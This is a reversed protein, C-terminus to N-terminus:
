AKLIVSSQRLPTAVDILKDAARNARTRQREGSFFGVGSGAVLMAGVGYLGLAAPIGVGTLTLVTATAFVCVAGILMAAIEAIKRAKPTHKVLETTNLKLQECYKKSNVDKPNQVLKKTTTITSKLKELQDLTTGAQKFYDAALEDIAHCMARGQKRVSFTTDVDRTNESPVVQNCVMNLSQLEELLASQCSIREQSKGVLSFTKEIVSLDKTQLLKKLTVLKKEYSKMTAVKVARLQILEAPLADFNADLNNKSIKLRELQKNLLLKKANCITKEINLVFCGSKNVLCRQKDTVSVDECQELQELVKFLQQYSAKRQVQKPDSSTFECNAYLFINMYQLQYERQSADTQALIASLMSNMKNLLDDNKALSNTNLVPTMKYKHFLLRVLVDNKISINTVTNIASLYNDLKDLTVLYKGIIFEYKFINEFSETKSPDDIFEELKGLIETAVKQRSEVMSKTLNQFVENNVLENIFNIRDDVVGNKRLEINKIYINDKLLQLKSELKIDINLKCEEVIEEYKKDVFKIDYKLDKSAQNSTTKEKDKLRANICANYNKEIDSTIEALAKEGSDEMFIKFDEIQLLADKIAKQRNLFFDKYKNAAKTDGIYACMINEVLDAPMLIAKLFAKWKRHSFDKHAMTDVLIQRGIENQLNLLENKPVTKSLRPFAEIEGKDVPFADAPVPTKNLYIQNAHILSFKSTIPWFCEGLDIRVVRGESDFGWNGEHLDNEAFLYSSVYLEIFGNDVLKNTDYKFEAKSESTNSKKNGDFEELKGMLQDYFSVFGPIVKSVLGIRQGSSDCLVRNKPARDYGLYARHLAALASEIEQIKGTIEEKAQKKIIYNSAYLKSNKEYQAVEASKSKEIKLPKYQTTVSAPIFKTEFEKKQACPKKDSKKKAELKNIFEFLKTYQKQTSDLQQEVVLVKLARLIQTTNECYYEISNNGHKDTITKPKSKIWYLAKSTQEIIDRKNGFSEISTDEIIVKLLPQDKKDFGYEVTFETGCTEHTFSVRNLSM